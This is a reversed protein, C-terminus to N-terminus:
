RGGVLVRHNPVIRTGIAAGDEAAGELTALVLEPTTVVAVSGGEHLFRLCADIKPGMSGPPFQGDASYDEAESLCMEHVPRQEPTGFNIQVSEVGTVLVLAEANITTALRQASYDKDIVAEIGRYGSVTRAVPVGGGGCAVVLYGSEVLERVADAELVAMPQPSAVIQRFGRGSDEAMTRGSAAMAEARERSFFPGIPKTPHGFGPDDRRVIVHTVVSVVGKVADGCEERLALVIMSGLQGQTMADLSFLPQPPVVDSASEAQIALNGVQPGNGHVVVVRWDHALLSSISRAMMRANAMQQDYSGVEDERTLANGGLAIVATREM